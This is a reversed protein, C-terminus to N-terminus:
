PVSAETCGIQFPGPITVVRQVQLGACEVAISLTCCAERRARARSKWPTFHVMRARATEDPVMVGITTSDTTSCKSGARDSPSPAVDRLAGPQAFAAPQSSYPKLVNRCRM